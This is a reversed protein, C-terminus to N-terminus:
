DSWRLAKTDLAALAWRRLSKLM